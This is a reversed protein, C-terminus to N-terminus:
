NRASGKKKGSKEREQVKRGASRLERAEPAECALACFVRAASNRGAGGQLASLSSILAWDALCLSWSVPVLRYPSHLQETLIQLFLFYFNNKVLDPPPIAKIEWGLKLFKSHDPGNDPLSWSRGERKM